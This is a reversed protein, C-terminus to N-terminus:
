MSRIHLVTFLREVCSIHNISKKNTTYVNIGNNDKVLIDFNNKIAIKELQPELESESNNSNYFNNVIEYVSKLAKTKSYM